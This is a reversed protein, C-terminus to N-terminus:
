VGMYVGGCMYLCVHTCISAQLFEGQDLRSSDEVLRWSPPLELHEFACALREDLTSMDESWLDFQDTKLSSPDDLANVDRVSSALFQALFFTSDPVFNFMGDSLLEM